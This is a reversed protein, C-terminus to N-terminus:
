KQRYHSGYEQNTTSQAAAIHIHPFFITAFTSWVFPVLIDSQLSLFSQPSFHKVASLIPLAPVEEGLSGARWGLSWISEVYINLSPISGVCDM